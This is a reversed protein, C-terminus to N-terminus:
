HFRPFKLPLKLGLYLAPHFYWRFMSRFYASHEMLVERCFFPFFPLSSTSSNTELRHCPLRSGGAVIVTDFQGYRTSNLILCSDVHIQKNQLSIHSVHAGQCGPDSGGKSARQQGQSCSIPPSYLLDHLRKIVYLNNISLISCSPFDVLYCDPIIKWISDEISWCKSHTSPSLGPGWPQATCSPRSSYWGGRGRPGPTKRRWEERFCKKFRWAPWWQRQRLLHTSPLTPFRFAPRETLQLGLPRTTQARAQDPRVVEWSCRCWSPRWCLSVSLTQLSLLVYFTKRSWNLTWM